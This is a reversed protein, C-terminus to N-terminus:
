NYQSFALMIERKKDSKESILIDIDDKQVLLWIVM